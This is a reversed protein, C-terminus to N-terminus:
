GLIQKILDQSNKAHFVKGKRIDDLGKDIGSKRQLRLSWGMKRSITRLFSLDANPLTLQVNETTAM